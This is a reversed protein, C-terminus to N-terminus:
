RPRGARFLAVAKEARRQRTEPSKAAAVTDCHFRQLSNSLTGFYDSATRDAALATALEPPVEVRRPGDAVTVTVSVPDGGAIGAAKRVAASVSIMHRGGMVGVTNEYRYGNVTVVVPPRSGAGLAEIVEAPVEIGTNNGAALVTTEFSATRATEAM